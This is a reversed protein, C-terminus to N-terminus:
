GYRKQPMPQPPQNPGEVAIVLSLSDPAIFQPAYAAEHHVHFGPEVDAPMDFFSALRDLGDASGSLVLAGDVVAIRDKGEKKQLRFRPLIGSYPRPDFSAACPIVVEGPARALRRLAAAVEALESVSGSVEHEGSSYRIRIMNEAWRYLDAAYAV